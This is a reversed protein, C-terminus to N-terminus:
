MIPSSHRIPSSNKASPPAAVDDDMHEVQV